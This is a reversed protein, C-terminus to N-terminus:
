RLRELGADADRDVADLRAKTYGKRNDLPLGYQNQMKKYFDM